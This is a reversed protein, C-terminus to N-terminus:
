PQKVFPYQTELEVPRLEPSTANLTDTIKGVLLQGNENIAVLSYYKDGKAPFITGEGCSKGAVDMPVDKQWNSIGCYEFMNAMKVVGAEKLTITFEEHTLDFKSAGYDAPFEVPGSTQGTATPVSCQNDKYQTTQLVAHNNEIVVQSRENTTGSATCNSLWTGDFEGANAVSYVTALAMIILAKMNEGQSLQGNM